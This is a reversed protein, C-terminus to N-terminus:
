RQKLCRTIDKQERYNKKWDGGVFEFGRGETYFFALCQGDQETPVILLGVTVFLEHSIISQGM